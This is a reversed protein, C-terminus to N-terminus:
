RRRNQFMFALNGWGHTVAAPPQGDLPYVAGDVVIGMTAVPARQGTLMGQFTRWTGDPRAAGGTGKSAGSLHSTLGSM